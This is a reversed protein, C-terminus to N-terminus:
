RTVTANSTANGSEIPEDSLTFDWSLGTDYAVEFPAPALDLTEVWTTGSTQVVATGTTRRQMEETGNMVSFPDEAAAVVATSLDRSTAQGGVTATAELTGSPTDVVMRLQDGVPTSQVGVSGSGHTVPFAHEGFVGTVSSGRPGIVEPTAVWADATVNKTEGPTEIPVLAAAGSQTGRLIGDVTTDPCEWAFLLFLASGPAPGEVPTWPAVFPEVASAQPTWTLTLARCSEAKFTSLGQAPPPGGVGDGTDTDDTELGQIVGAMSGIIVLAGIVGVVTDKVM